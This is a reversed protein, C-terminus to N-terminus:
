PTELRAGTALLIALPVTIVSIQLLALLAVQSPPSNAILTYIRIPLTAEGPPAVLISVGLEGFALVFVMLWTAVIGPRMQPLVIRGINRLWSAGSVAAAEEHSVPVFRAIAALILAAVPLFRGLVALVFMTDTGYLFGPAGPRNWLGILGVGLVTSPVAFLTVFVVDAVRGLWSAARARAYGLWVAVGVVVTSGIGAVALSNRIATTSGALVDRGARAGAAEGILVFVPFAVSVGIIVACVATAALPSVPLQPATTATRRRSTVLRDGLLVASIAAVFVSLALLPVTLITARVPDYLAAFATFVETTYVRVQLLGPVGFESVALVFIVLGAALIGPAALPLTIRWLVRGPSAVLSAAEDLRGDTRRIAVETALMSLPYFALGLVVIAGATSQVWPAAYIWALAVLYPPLLLPITLGFRLLARRHLGARALLIGLPTGIATALVATGIGLAATNVLLRRQRADLVLDSYPASASIASGALFVLPTVSCIAFVAWAFGIVMPRVPQHRWITVIGSDGRGS